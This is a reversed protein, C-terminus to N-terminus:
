VDVFRLPLLSLSPDDRIWPLRHLHLHPGISPAYSHLEGKASWYLLSFSLGSPCAVSPTLEPRQM